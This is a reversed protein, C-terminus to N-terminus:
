QFNYELRLWVSRGRSPLTKLEYDLLVDEHVDNFVDQINLTVLSNPVLADSSLTINTVTDAPVNSGTVDLRSSLTQVELGLTARNNFLPKALNLKGLWDPVNILDEGLDNHTSQHTVSVNVRWRNANVYEVGLEQGKTKITSYDYSIGDTTKNQYVSATLRMKRAIKQQWVLETTVVREREPWQISSDFEEILKEWPNKNRFAKGYSLKFTTEPWPAYITALRPSMASGSDTDDFRVGPVLKLKDTVRYEDQVYASVIHNTVDFSDEFSGYDIFSVTEEFQQEVNKRYETGFLIAHNDFWTGVFKFDAGWWRGTSLQDVNGDYYNGSFAYRYRGYYFHTSSKLTSSIDKDYKISAFRSKDVQRSLFDLDGPELWDIFANNFAIHSVSGYELSWNAFSGKIFLRTNEKQKLRDIVQNTYSAGSFPEWGDLSPFLVSLGDDDYKSASVLFEAGNDFSKGFTVQKRLEGDDGVNAAVQVGAIDGGSKTIVNIVGLFASNGYTTSGPGPIFEVREILSVDLFADEGLFIQDYVNENASYGDIVLMIRGAYDGPAGFGRGGLYEYDLSSTVYLGRMSQLIDALTRYGYDRIDEATVISVASPADSIQRAIHSAPVFTTELLQEISLHSVDFEGDNIPTSRPADEALASLSLVSVFAVITFRISFNM